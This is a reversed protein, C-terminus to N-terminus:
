PSPADEESSGEGGALLSVVVDVVREARFAGRILVLPALRRGDEMAYHPLEDSLLVAPVGPLHRLLAREAHAVVLVRPMRRAAVELAAAVSRVAVVELAIGPRLAESVYARTDADSAAVLAIPASEVLPLSSALLAAM